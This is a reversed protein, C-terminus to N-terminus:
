NQPLIGYSNQMAKEPIHLSKALLDFDSKKLKRKKGNITLAMEEKDAAMLTYIFTKELEKDRRMKIIFYSVYLLAILLYPRVYKEFGKILNKYHLNPLNDEILKGGFVGALFILISNM